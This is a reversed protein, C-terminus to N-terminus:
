FCLGRVGKEHEINVGGKRKTCKRIVVDVATYTHTNTRSLDSKTQQARAANLDAPTSPWPCSSQSLLYFRTSKRHFLGDPQKSAVTLKFSLVSPHVFLLFRELLALVKVKVNEFVSFHLRPGEPIKDTRTGRSHQSVNGNQTWSKGWLTWRLPFGRYFREKSDKTCSTQGM